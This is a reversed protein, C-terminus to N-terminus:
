SLLVACDNVGAETQVFHCSAFHVDRIFSSEGGVFVAGGDGATRTRDFTCAAFSMIAIISYVAGGADGFVGISKAVKTSGTSHWVLKLAGIARSIVYKHPAM